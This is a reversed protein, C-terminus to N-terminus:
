GGFLPLPLLAPIVPTIVVQIQFQEGNQSPHVPAYLGQLELRVPLVAAIQVVKSISPGFPFTVRNGSSARWDVEIIPSTGVSWGDGFFYGVIYQLHLESVAPRSNSGAFSWWQQAIL